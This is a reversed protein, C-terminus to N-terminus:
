EGVIANVLTSKGTNRKGVIAIKMVPKTPTESATSGIRDLIKELLVDKGTKNASSVCLFEGFGLRNFEAAGPFLSDSDCKNAVGIVRSNSGRLLRAIKEDLPLLGDRIDCVFLILDATEIAVAIQEAVFSDLHDKDVIGFGGTDILEFYKGGSEIITSVRDRTVGATPEVISIMKGALANFLSSKGVNPRGIIAVKPIAM